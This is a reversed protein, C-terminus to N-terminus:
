HAARPLHGADDEFIAGPGPGHLGVGAAVEDDSAGTYAQLITALGLQAPPVPPQGVPKDQYMGALEGQFDEDFLEHRHERLWVFLKARKIRKIVERELRSCAVPPQWV